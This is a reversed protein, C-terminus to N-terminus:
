QHEGSTWVVKMDSTKFGFKDIKYKTEVGSSDEEVQFQYGPASSCRYVNKDQKSGRAGCAPCKVM